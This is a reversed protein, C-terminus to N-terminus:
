DATLPLIFLFTLYLLNEIFCPLRSLCKLMYDYIHVLLILSITELLIGSLSHVSVCVCALSM